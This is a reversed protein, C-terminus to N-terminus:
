GEENAAHAHWPSVERTWLAFAAAALALYVVSGAVTRWGNMHVASLWLMVAGIPRLALALVTTAAAASFLADSRPWFLLLVCLVAPLGFVLPWLWAPGIEDEVLMSYCVTLAALVLASVGVVTAAVSPHGRPARRWSTFTM